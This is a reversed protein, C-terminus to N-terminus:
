VMDCVDKWVRYGLNFVVEQGGQPEPVVRTSRGSEKVLQRSLCQGGGAQPSSVNNHKSQNDSQISSSSGAL